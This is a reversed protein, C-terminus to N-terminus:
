NVVDSSKLKLDNDGLDTELTARKKAKNKFLAGSKLADGQENVLGRGDEEKKENKKEKKKKEEEQKKKKEETKKNEENKKIANKFLDLFQDVDSFFKDPEKLM